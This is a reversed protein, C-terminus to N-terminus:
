YEIFMKTIAARDNTCSLALMALVRAKQPNLNDAAIFGAARDDSRQIVRGSGARSSQVILVGRKVADVLAVRQAPSARGPPTGAVVIGKVSAEVFAEIARASAGAYSYVIEVSPLEQIGGVDFEADPAHRRVPRRYITVVGDPDVNGLVGFDPTQFAQLRFNSTKAVERASQVEDNMVVLVGLGRAERAAAVRLANVLNIGADSGLGNPPRQAGVLVVPTAVKVALHLFYATEELTSTGHVIVIGTISDDTGVRSIVRNLELWLAPDAAASDIARFPVPVVDFDTLVVSFMALVDAVQLPKAFQGYEYLDLKHRGPTSISGGMGIVAIRPQM